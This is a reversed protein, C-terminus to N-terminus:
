HACMELFFVLHRTKGSRAGAGAAALCATATDPVVKSVPLWLDQSSYRRPRPCSERRPFPHPCLSCPVFEYHKCFLRIYENVKGLEELLRFYAAPRQVRICVGDFAAGDLASIAPEVADGSLFECFACDDVGNGHVLAVRKIAGFKRCLEHVRSEKTFPPLGGIFISRKKQDLRMKLDKKVSM